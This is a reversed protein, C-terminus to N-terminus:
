TDGRQKLQQLGEHAPFVAHTDTMNGQHANDIFDDIDLLTVKRFGTATVQAGDDIREPFLM